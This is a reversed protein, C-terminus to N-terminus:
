PHQACISPGIVEEPREASEAADEPALVPLALGGNAAAVRAADVGNEGPEGGRDKNLEGRGNAHEHGEAAGLPDM